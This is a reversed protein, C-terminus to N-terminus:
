KAVGAVTARLTTIDAGIANGDSAANVLSSNTAVAFDGSAFDVFGVAASDAPFL